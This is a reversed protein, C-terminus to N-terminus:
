STNTGGAPTEEMNHPSQVLFIMKMRHRTGCQWSHLCAPNVAEILTVIQWAGAVSCQIACMQKEKSM